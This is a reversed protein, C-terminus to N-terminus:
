SIGVRFLYLSRVPFLTYILSFGLSPTQDQSLFVTCCELYEPSYSHFAAHILLLNCKKISYFLWLYILSFSPTFTRCNAMLLFWGWLKMLHVATHTNQPGYFLFLVTCYNSLIFWSKCSTNRLILHSETKQNEKPSANPGSTHPIHARCFSLPSHETRNRYPCSSTQLGWCFWVSICTEAIHPELLPLDTLHKQKTKNRAM